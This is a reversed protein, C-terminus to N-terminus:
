YATDLLAKYGGITEDPATTNGKNDLQCDHEDIITQIDSLYGSELAPFMSDVYRILLIEPSKTYFAITKYNIVDGLEYLCHAVVNVYQWAFDKFAQGSGGSSIASTIRSAVESVNSFSALPNYKASLAPFGVHVMMVDDLRGCAKAACYLDQMVALDGKPDIVLVAEGNRVDQNLKISLYRTKGVRTMGFTCEHANRHAQHLYVPKEQDCGVGHIWPKGGIAPMATFPLWTIHSLKECFGNPFKKARNHVWRYMVGKQIYRQHSVLSLLHLRQRHIPLWRFGQGIYLYQQSLPIEQTSMAFPKLTLLRKKYLVIKIGQQARIFGLLFFPAAVMSSMHHEVAMTSPLFFCIGGFGFAVVTVLLEWPTRLQNEFAHQAM